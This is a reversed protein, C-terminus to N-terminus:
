LSQSPVLFYILIPRPLWAFPPFFIDLPPPGLQLPMKDMNQHGTAKPSLAYFCKLKNEGVYSWFTFTQLAVSGPTTVSAAPVVACHAHNSRRVGCPETFCSDPTMDKDPSDRKYKFVAGLLLFQSGDLPIMECIRNSSVIQGTYYIVVLKLTENKVGSPLVFYFLM